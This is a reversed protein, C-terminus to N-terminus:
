GWLPVPYLGGDSLARLADRVAQRDEQYTVGWWRDESKLVRVSAKNEELLGNVAFPLFFEAKLPNKPVDNALFKPLEQRM